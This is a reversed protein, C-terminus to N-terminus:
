ALLLVTGTKLCCTRSTQDAVQQVQGTTMLRETLATGLTIGDLHLLVDAEVEIVDAGARRHEVEVTEAM